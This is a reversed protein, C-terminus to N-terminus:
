SYWLLNSVFLVLRINLFQYSFNLWKVNFLNVSRKNQSQNLPPSRRSAPKMEGCAAFDLASDLKNKLESVVDRLANGLCAEIINWSHILHSSCDGAQFIVFCSSSISNRCFIKALIRRLLSDVWM